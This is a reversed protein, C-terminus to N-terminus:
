EIGIQAILYCIAGRGGCGSANKDRQVAIPPEHKERPAIGCRVGGIGITQCRQRTAKTVGEIVSYALSPTRTAKVLGIARGVVKGIPREAYWAEGNLKACAEELGALIKLVVDEILPKLSQAIG